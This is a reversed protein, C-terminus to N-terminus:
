AGAGVVVGDKALPAIMEILDPILIDPTVEFDDTMRTAIDSLSSTGDLRGLFDMATENCTYIEGTTTMLVVGTEGVARMTASPSLSLVSTEAIQTM